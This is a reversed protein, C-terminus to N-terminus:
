SLSRELRKAAVEEILSAITKYSSARGASKRWILGIPRTVARGALPRVVVESAARIESQVYLAPLFAAGMGMGVMQRLADLSTGVYEQQLHAGYHSALGAVQDHLRYAPSLSLISLGKLDAVPVKKKQALPHDVALALYLPERFLPAEVFQDSGVPLQSLIVDHTGAHLDIDLDRPAGERIYLNLEPYKRHLSRVVYPLLYPGLTASTGLRITGELGKTASQAFDSLSQVDDVISQARTVVERGVPTFTIGGRHREVLHLGLEEELGQIQVSLSPQTIGVREAARRFHRAENLALLCHLQKLTVSSSVPM